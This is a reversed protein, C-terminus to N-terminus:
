TRPIKGGWMCFYLIFLQYQPQAFVLLASDSNENQFYIHDWEDRFKDLFDLNQNRASSELKDMTSLLCNATEKFNSTEKIEEYVSRAKDFEHNLILKTAYRFKFAPYRGKTGNLIIKSTDAEPSYEEFKEIWLNYNKLRRYFKLLRLQGDPTNRLLPDLILLIKKAQFLKGLLTYIMFLKTLLPVNDPIHVIANEGIEAAVKLNKADIFYQIL